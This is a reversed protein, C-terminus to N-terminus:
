FAPWPQFFFGETQVTLREWVFLLNYPFFFFFIMCAHQNDNSFNQTLREPDPMVDNELATRLPFCQHILELALFKSYKM